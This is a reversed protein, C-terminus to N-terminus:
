DLHTKQPEAVPTKKTVPMDPEEGLTRRLMERGRSLRTYFASMGIGLLGATEEGNYGMLYHLSLVERYKVPLELIAALTEGNEDPAEIFELMESGIRRKRWWHSLTDKCLNRATVILWAKLHDETEIAKKSEMLRVFTDATADEADAQNKLYIFCVRYILESYTEFAQETTMPNIPM